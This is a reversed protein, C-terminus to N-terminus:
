KLFQDLVRDLEKYISDKLDDSKDENRAHLNLVIIDYWRGKLIIYLMRYSFLEVTRVALIM